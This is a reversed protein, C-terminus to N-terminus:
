AVRRHQNRHNESPHGGAAPRTNPRANLDLELVDPVMMVARPHNRNESLAYKLAHVRDVFLGGHLGSPDQVVWNGRSDRGILFLASVPGTTMSPPEGNSM